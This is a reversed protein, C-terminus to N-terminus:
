VSRMELWLPNNQGYVYLCPCEMIEAGNWQLISQRYDLRCYEDACVLCGEKRYPCQGYRDDSPLFTLPLSVVIGLIRLVVSLSCEM